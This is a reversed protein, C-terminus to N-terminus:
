ISNLILKKNCTKIFRKINASNIHEKYVTKIHVKCIREVGGLLQNTFLSMPMIEGKYLTQAYFLYIFIRMNM